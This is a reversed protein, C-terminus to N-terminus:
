NNGLFSKCFKILPLELSSLLKSQLHAIGWPIAPSPTENYIFVIWFEDWRSFLYKWFIPAHSGFRLLGHHMSIFIFVKMQANMKVIFIVRSAPSFFNKFNVREWPLNCVPDAMEDSTGWMSHSYKIEGRQSKKKACM